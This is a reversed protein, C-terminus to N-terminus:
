LRQITWTVYYRSNSGCGTPSDLGPHFTTHTIPGSSTLSRLQSEPYTIKDAAVLGDCRGATFLQGISGIIYNAAVGALGGLPGAVSGIAGSIASSVKSSALNVAGQALSELASTGVHTNMVVYSFSIEQNPGVDADISLGVPHVGNNRDGMSKSNKSVEQNNVAAAMSVVVTDEHVARTNDIRISNITFRYKAGPPPGGAGPIHTPLLGGAGPIHTPLSGGAGPIHTPLPGGAGPIHTPIPTIVSPPITAPPQIPVSFRSFVPYPYYYNYPYDYIPDYRYYPWNYRFM